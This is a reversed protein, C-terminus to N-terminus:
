RAKMDWRDQLSNILGRALTLENKLKVIDDAMTEVAIRLEARESIVTMVKTASIVTKGESDSEYIDPSNLPRSM